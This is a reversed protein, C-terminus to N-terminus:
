RDTLISSGARALLAAAALHSYYILTPTPAIYRVVTYTDTHIVSPTFGAMAASVGPVPPDRAVDIVDVERAQLLTGNSGPVRRLPLYLELAPPGDSPDVVIYRPRATPTGIAAAVGRWDDRQDAPTTEVGVFAVIGAACLSAVLVPGARTRSAAVAALVVLPVMAAILNRTIVYDIGLLALALPVGVAIAALAAQGRDAFRLGTAIGAAALVAVITLVTAHPTAYGVLFQKVIASARSGLASSKIFRARDASAQKVALPLLAAGVVVVFAISLAAPRSRRAHRWALWLLEPIVVFVAFYHTALALAAALAWGRWDGRVLCWVTLACLLVLLAYARAEQSYWILLPNAAALAAAALAARRGGLRGAVAALVVITATGYLASLSRLGVAGSGFVRAWAWELVYYLPPTSESHPIASLMAGFSRTVLSHTVAEDLWMSQVDLTAFRVAAGAVVVAVIAWTWADRRRATM